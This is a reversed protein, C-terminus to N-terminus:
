TTNAPAPWRIDARGAAWSAIHKHSLRLPLRRQSCTGGRLRRSCQAATAPGERNKTPPQKARTASRVPPADRLAPPVPAGGTRPLKVHLGQAAGHQHRSGDGGGGCRTASTWAIGLDAADPWGPLGCGPSGGGGRPTCCRFFVATRAPLASPPSPPCGPASATGSLSSDGPSFMTTPQRLMQAQGQSTADSNVQVLLSRGSNLFWGSRSTTTYAPVPSARTLSESILVGASAPAADVWAM